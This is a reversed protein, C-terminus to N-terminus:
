RVSRTQIVEAVNIKSIKSPIFLTANTKKERLNQQQKFM